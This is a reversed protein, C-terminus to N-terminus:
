QLHTKMRKIETHGKRERASSGSIKVLHWHPEHSASFFFWRNMPQKWKASSSGQCHSWCFLQCRKMRCHWGKSHGWVNIIALASPLLIEDLLEAVPKGNKIPKWRWLMGFDHVVHFIYQNETYIYSAPEQKIYWKCHLLGSGQILFIGQLLFCCSVRTNKGSFAILEAEQPHVM